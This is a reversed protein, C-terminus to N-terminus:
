PHRADKMYKKAMQRKKSFHRNQDEARKKIPNNAKQCLAAHAM